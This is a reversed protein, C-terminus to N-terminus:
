GSGVSFDFLAASVYSGDRDVRDLRIGPVMWSAEFNKGWEVAERLFEPTVNHALTVHPHYPFRPQYDLPGSRIDEALQCCQTAGQTVRLFAVPSIPEFTGTGELALRFPRHAMAVSRIHEFVEERKDRSIPIPPVVTIHAPVKLALADGMALRAETIQSIWPEPVGIVVGLWEENDERSPLFM